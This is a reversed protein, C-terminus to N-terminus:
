LIEVLFYNFSYEENSDHRYVVLSLPQTVTLQNDFTATTIYGGEHATSCTGYRDFLKFMMTYQRPVPSNTPVLNFDQVAAAASCPPYSGYNGQDYLEYLNSNVGDSLGVRPDRDATLPSPPEVGVTICVTADVDLDGVGVLPVELLKELYSGTGFQMLRGSISFSPATFSSLQQVNDVTIHLGPTPQMISQYENYNYIRILLVVSLM